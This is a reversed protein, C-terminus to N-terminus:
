SDSRASQSGATRSASGPNVSVLHIHGPHGHQFCGHTEGSCDPDPAYSAGNGVVQQGGVEGPAPQHKPTDHGQADLGCGHAEDM